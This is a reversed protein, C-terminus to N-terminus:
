LIRCNNYTVYYRIVITAKFIFPFNHWIVYGPIGSYSSLILLQHLWWSSMVLLQFGAATHHYSPAALGVCSNEALIYMSGPAMLMVIEPGGMVMFSLIGHITSISISIPTVERSKDKMSCQCYQIKSFAPPCLHSISRGHIATTM